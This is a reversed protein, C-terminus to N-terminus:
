RSSWGWASGLAIRIFQSLQSQYRPTVIGRPGIKVLETKKYNGVMRLYAVAMNQLASGVKATQDVNVSLGQDSFNFDQLSARMQHFLLSYFSVGFKLISWFDQNTVRVNNNEEVILTELSVGTLPPMFNIDALVLRVFQILQEPNSYSAWNEPLLKNVEKIIFEDRTM